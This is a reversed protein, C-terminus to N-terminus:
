NGEKIANKNCNIDLKTQSQLNKQEIVNRFVIQFGTFRLIINVHKSIASSLINRRNHPDRRDREDVRTAGMELYMRVLKEMFKYKGAM